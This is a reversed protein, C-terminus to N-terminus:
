YSIHLKTPDFSPYRSLKLIELMVSKMKKKTEQKVIDEIFILLCTCILKENNKIYSVCVILQKNILNKLITNQIRNLLQELKDIQLMKNKKHEESETTKNVVYKQLLKYKKTRYRLISHKGPHNHYQEFWWSKIFYKTINEYLGM